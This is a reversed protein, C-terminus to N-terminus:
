RSCQRRTGRLWPIWKEEHRQTLGSLHMALDKSGGKIQVNVLIALTEESHPLGLQEQLKKLKERHPMKAAQCAQHCCREVDEWPMNFSFLNGRVQTRGQAGGMKESMLQGFPDELYYVLMTSWCVSAAACELWAVQEEVLFRDVYGYYLDNSLSTPITGGDVHKYLRSWCDHCVPMACEPCLRCVYPATELEQQKKAIHDHNGCAVDETCGFLLVKAKGIPMESSWQSIHRGPDSACGSM